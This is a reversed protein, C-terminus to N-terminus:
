EPTLENEDRNHMNFQEGCRPCQTFGTGDDADAYELGCSPCRADELDLMIM